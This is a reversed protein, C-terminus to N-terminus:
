QSRTVPNRCAVEAIRRSGPDDLEGRCFPPIDAFAQPARALSARLLVMGDESGGGRQLGYRPHFFVYTPAYTKLAWMRPSPAVAAPFHFNGEADSTTWRAHYVPQSAGPVGAGRYSEVIEAGAVSAGSDLDVVRGNVEQLRFPGPSPLCAAALLGLAILATTRM